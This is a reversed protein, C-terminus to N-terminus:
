VGYVVEAWELEMSWPQFIYRLQEMFCNSPQGEFANSLVYGSM